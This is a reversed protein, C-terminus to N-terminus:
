VVKVVATPRRGRERIWLQVSLFSEICNVLIQWDILGLASTCNKLFMRLKLGEFRYRAAPNVVCLMWLWVGPIQTWRTVPVLNMTSYIRDLDDPTWVVSFPTYNIISECYVIATLRCCEYIFPEASPSKISSLSPLSLLGNEISSLKLLWQHHDFDSVSGCMYSHIHATIFTMDELIQATANDLRWNIIMGKLSRSPRYLPSDLGEMPSSYNSIFVFDHESPPCLFLERELIIALHYDM